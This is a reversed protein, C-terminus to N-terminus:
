DGPEWGLEKVRSTAEALADALSVDLPPYADILENACDVVDTKAGDIVAGFHERCYHRGESVRHAPRGCMTSIDPPGDRVIYCCFKSKAM